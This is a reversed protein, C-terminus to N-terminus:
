DFRHMLFDGVRVYGIRQYLANSTPNALDTHLFAFRGADLLRQTLGAVLASAYGRGRRERPTYVNNVRIGRVTPGVAAACSVVEGAANEWVHMAQDAIVRDIAKAADEREETAGLTANLDIHWDILAERDNVTANRSAGDPRTPPPIVERCEYIGQALSFRISRSIAEAVAEVSENAGLVVSASDDTLSRALARWASANASRSVVLRYDLRLAVAVTAEGDLVIGALAGPPFQEVGLALGILLGHAAEHELLFPISRRRFDEPDDLELFQM